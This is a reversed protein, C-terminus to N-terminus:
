QWVRRAAPSRSLRAYLQGYREGQVKNRKAWARWKAYVSM